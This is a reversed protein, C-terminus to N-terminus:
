KLEGREKMVFDFDAEQITKRGSHVAADKLELALKNAIENLYSQLRISVVKEVKMTTSKLIKKCTNKSIM